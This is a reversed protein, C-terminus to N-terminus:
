NAPRTNSSDTDNELDLKYFDVSELELLFSLNDTLNGYTLVALDEILVENLNEGRSFETSLYGGVTIEDLLKYGLGLQYPEQALAASAPFLALAVCPYVIAGPIRM